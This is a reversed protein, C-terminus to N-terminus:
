SVSPISSSKYKQSLETKDLTSIFYFMLGYYPNFDDTIIVCFSLALFYLVRKHFFERRAILHSFLFVFLISGLLGYGAIIYFIHSHLQYGYSRYEIDGLTSVGVGFIPHEIFGTIAKLTTDIRIFISKNYHAELELLKQSLINIYDQNSYLHDSSFIFLLAVIPTSIIIYKLYNNKKMWLYSIFASFILVFFSILAGRSDALLIFVLYLFMLVLKVKFDYRFVKKEVLVVAAACIFLNSLNNNNYLFSLEFFGYFPEFNVLIEILIQLLSVLASCILFVKILFRRHEQEDYSFTIAIVFFFLAWIHQLIVLGSFQIEYFISNIAELIILVSIAASYLYLSKKTNESVKYIKHELNFFLIVILYPALYPLYYGLYPLIDGLIRSLWELIGIAGFVILYSNLYYYKSSFLM